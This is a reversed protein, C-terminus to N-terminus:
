TVSQSFSLFLINDHPFWLSDHKCIRCFLARSLNRVWRRGSNNDISKCKSIPLSRDLQLIPVDLTKSPLINFHAITAVNTLNRWIALSYLFPDNKLCVEMEQIRRIALLDVSLTWRASCTLGLLSSFSWFHSFCCDRFSNDNNRDKILPRRDPQRWQRLHRSTPRVREQRNCILHRKVRREEPLRGLSWTSALKLLIRSWKLDQVARKPKELDSNCLSVKTIMPIWTM